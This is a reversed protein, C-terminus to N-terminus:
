MSTSYTGYYFMRHFQRHRLSIYTRNLSSQEKYRKQDNMIVRFCYFLLIRSIFFYVSYFLYRLKKCCFFHICNWGLLVEEKWPKKTKEKETCKNSDSFAFHFKFLFFFRFFSFFFLLLGKSKTPIDIFLVSSVALACTVLDVLMVSKLGWWTVLVGSFSPSILHSLGM